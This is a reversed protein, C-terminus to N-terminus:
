AHRLDTLRLRVDGSVCGIPGFTHRAEYHPALAFRCRILLAHVMLKAELNALQMGICVHPGAGFPQYIGPHRKEEAREPSFRLPDFRNPASWWRPHRGLAPSCALAFTGAPIRKGLLEVERLSRRPVGPALPMLRLTEKWVMDLLSLKQLSEADGINGAAISEERLREQWEPNAALLYVMSTLGLSTTDFAGFVINLFLGVLRKDTEPDPDTGSALRSFLDSGPAKRRVPLQADAFALLTQYGRMARRWTPSWSSDKVLALPGHWFDLLARELAEVQAPTCPGVILDTALRAVAARVAPKFAVVGDRVWREAQTSFAARTTDFYGQVAKPTFAPAALKRADRHKDFDLSGLGGPRKESARMWGFFIQDWGMGTSWAEDENRLIALAADADWVWLTPTLGYMGRYLDGYRARTQELHVIGERASGAITTLAALWGEAGPVGRPLPPCPPMGQPAARDLIVAAIQPDVQGASSRVVERTPETQM